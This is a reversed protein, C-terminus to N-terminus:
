MQVSNCRDADDKLREKRKPSRHNRNWLEKYSRDYECEFEMTFIPWKCKKCVRMRLIENEDTCVTDAVRVDGGCKPCKM